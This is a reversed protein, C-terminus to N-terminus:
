EDKERKIMKIIHNGKLIGGSVILIIHPIIIDPFPKFKFWLGIPWILGGSIILILGLTKKDM